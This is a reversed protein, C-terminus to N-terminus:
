MASESVLSVSPQLDGLNCVTGQKVNIFRNFKATTDFQDYIVRFYANQRDAKASRWEIVAPSFIVIRASINIIVQNYTCADDVTIEVPSVKTPTTTQM